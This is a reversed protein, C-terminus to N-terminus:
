RVTEPPHIRFIQSDRVVSFEKSPLFFIIYGIVSPKLRSEATVKVYYDDSELVKVNTLKINSINIAWAIMSNLDKFRKIIKVNGEVSTGVFERKIPDIQLTRVIKQGIVFEDPWLKWHRFLDIYFVIEKSLGNNLDEILKEDPQLTTSVILENNAQRVDVGSIEAAFCATIVLLAWSTVLIIVSLFRHPVAHARRPVHAIRGPETM